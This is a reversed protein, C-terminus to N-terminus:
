VLAVLPAFPRVEAEEATILADFTAVVPDPDAEHTRHAHDPATVLEGSRELYEESTRLKTVSPVRM